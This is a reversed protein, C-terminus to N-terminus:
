IIKRELWSPVLKLQIWKKLSGDSDKVWTICCNVWQTTSVNEPRSQPFVETYDQGCLILYDNKTLGDVGGIVFTGPKWSGSELIEQIKEVGELGPISYEPFITFHTKECGHDVQRAIELTRTIREIQKAKENNLWRFPEDGGLEIFPQLVVIGIGGIPLTINPQVEKIEIM